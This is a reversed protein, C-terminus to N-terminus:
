WIARHHGLKPHNKDKDSLKMESHPVKWDINLQPDNYQVGGEHEKSYFNDCKYFFIAEKSLVSYGHALGRPILLQKKNEESLIISFVEGYTSSEPRIDVCVDLIEGTVARVLKAQAHIGVQYHLGRVVGYESKSENDQVFNFEIGLQSFTRENFSEFFYGRNDAFVKPEFVWLGKISTETFPM